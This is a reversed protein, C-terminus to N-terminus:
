THATVFGPNKRPGPQENTVVERHQPSRLSVDLVQYRPGQCLVRLAEALVLTAAVAGVFSAGVTRGAIELVGCEADGPPTGTSILQDVLNRYAPQEFFPSASPKSAFAYRAKLGSPFSHIQIENYHQPGGGLGADLIYDFNADELVQRPFPDDFGAIALGPEGSTRQTNADFAREVIRTQFGILDLQQAVARAKTMGVMENNVLLGTSENADIVVDFDQLYILVEQHNSYPLFGLSWCYAQGLHGLGLLWLQSPLSNCRAGFSKRDQWDLEPKWLSIGVDRQAAVSYGRTAQFVESVALAGALVGALEFETQEPLRHQPRTVVGGSWAEWTPMVISNGLVETAAEGIVITPYNADLQTVLQGGLRTIADSTREDRAWPSSLKPDDEIRVRVGGLFARRGANVITLLTAQRTLSLDIGPAVHVQLVYTSALALAEEFNAARGEDIEIKATRHLQDADIM